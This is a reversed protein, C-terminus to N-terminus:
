VGKRDSLKGGYVVETEVAGGGVKTAKLQLKGDDLLLRDGVSVSEIIEPHPLFAREATGPEDTSDLM